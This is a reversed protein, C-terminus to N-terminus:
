NLVMFKKSSVGTGSPTTVEIKGSQAGSPITFKIKTATDESTVAGIGGITVSGAGELATGTITVSTGVVGSTPRFSALEPHPVTVRGIANDSNTFWLAGDPGTTIGDVEVGPAYYLSRTGSTTIRVVANSYGDFWLAGDPGATISGPDDGIDYGSYTSVSGSTTIRGIAECQHVM